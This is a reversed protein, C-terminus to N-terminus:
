RSHNRIFRRPDVTDFQCSNSTQLWDDAVLVVALASAAVAADRVGDVQSDRTRV